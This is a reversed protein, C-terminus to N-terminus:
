LEWPEKENESNIEEEWERQLKRSEPSSVCFSRIDDKRIRISEDIFVRKLSVWEDHVRGHSIDMLYDLMSINVCYNGGDPTYVHIFTSTSM